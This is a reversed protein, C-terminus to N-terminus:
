GLADRGRDIVGLRQVALRSIAIIRHAFAAHRDAILQRFFHDAQRHVSIELWGNLIANDLRYPPRERASPILVFVSSNVEGQLPSTSRAFRSRTPAIRPYPGVRGSRPWGEGQLPPHVVLVPMSSRM